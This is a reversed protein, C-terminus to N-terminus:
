RTGNDDEGEETTLPLVGGLYNTKFKIGAATLITNVLYGRRRPEIGYLLQDLMEKDVLRKVTARPLRRMDTAGNLAYYQTPDMGALGGVEEITTPALVRDLYEVWAHIFPVPSRDPNELLEEDTSARLTALVVASGPLDLCLAVARHFCLGRGTASELRMACSLTPLATNPLTIM